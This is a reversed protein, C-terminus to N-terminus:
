PISSFEVTLRLGAIWLPDRAPDASPNPFYQLDPQVLLRKHLRDSYTIEISTEAREADAGADRQNARFKDSVVGQYAGISLASEPRGPTVGEVLIGSQWGGSYDTTDGDSAGVRLFGTVRTADDDGGILRQEATFYAGHAPRKIPAGSADTDRLDDQEDSYSWAGVSLGLAGSWAAEAILLAGDEFDIDVSGPDGIVGARANIIAGRVTLADSVRWDLRAALATSPFISPGNPGTAALESGIGFAPAILLGASETAYFESNLDYLGIRASARDDAFRQELWAEYIKARQRAVEINDVGQLTGALDNPADGSNNLIHFRATAGSWRVAREMDVDFVVDLNDLVRTGDRVGGQLVSSVDAKYTATVTAAPGSAEAWPEGAQAPGGVGSAYTAILGAGFTGLLSSSFMTWQM